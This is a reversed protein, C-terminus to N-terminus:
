FLIMRNIISNLLGYALSLGIRQMETCMKIINCITSSVNAPCARVQKITKIYCINWFLSSTLHLTLKTLEIDPHLM